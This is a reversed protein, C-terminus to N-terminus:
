YTPPTQGPFQKKFEDEKMKLAHVYKKPMGAVGLIYVDITGDQRRYAEVGVNKKVLVCKKTKAWCDECPVCVTVSCCVFDIKVDKFRIEQKCVEQIVPVEVDFKFTVPKGYFPINICDTPDQPTLEYPIPKCTTSPPCKEPHYTIKPPNTCSDSCGSSGDPCPCPCPVNSNATSAPGIVISPYQQVSPAPMVVPPRRDVRHFLQAQAVSALALVGLVSWFPTKM